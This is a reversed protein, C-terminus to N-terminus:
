AKMLIRAEVREWGILFVFLWFMSVTTQEARVHNRSTVGEKM